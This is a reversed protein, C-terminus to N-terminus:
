PRCRSAGARPANRTGPASTVSDPDRNESVERPKVEDPDRPRTQERIKQLRAEQAPDRRHEDGVKTKDRSAQSGSEEGRARAPRAAPTPNTTQAM